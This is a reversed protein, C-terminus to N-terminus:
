YNGTAGGGGYSGGGGTFGSREPEAPATSLVHAGLAGIPSIGEDPGTYLPAATL